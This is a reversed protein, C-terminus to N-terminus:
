TRRLTKPSSDQMRGTKWLLLHRPLLSYIWSKPKYVASPSAKVSVDLDDRQSTAASDRTRRM